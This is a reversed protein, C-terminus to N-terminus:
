GTRKKQFRQGLAIIRLPVSILLLFLMWSVAVRWSWSLLGMLVGIVATVGNMAAFPYVLAWGKLDHEPPIHALAKAVEPPEGTFPEAWTALQPYKRVLPNYFYKRGWRRIEIWTKNLSGILGYPILLVFLIFAIGLAVAWYKEADVTTSLRFIIFNLDVQLDEKRLFQEGIRLLGAGLVPGPNTGIGGILSMILPDVTRDLGLATPEAQRFNVTHMIGAFTALFGSVVISLTRYLYINFGLTEARVPNDRLAILVKGSPSNMLRRVLMFAFIFVAMAVYYLTLRNRVANIWDPATWTIGDDGGTLFDFLSIKSLEYFIQAFALTFMAFYVGKLRFSAMAWILAILVGLALAIIISVEFSQQYKSVLIAVTYVGTGFFVGHGFSILGTFGFMLNYSIALVGLTFVEIMVGQWFKAESVVRPSDPSVESNTIDAVIYPFRWLLILALIYPWNDYLTQVLPHRRRLRNETQTM